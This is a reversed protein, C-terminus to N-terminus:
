VICMVQLLQFIWGRDELLQVPETCLQAGICPVRSIWCQVHGLSAKISERMCRLHGTSRQGELKPTRVFYFMKNIVQSGKAPGPGESVMCTPDPAIGGCERCAHM